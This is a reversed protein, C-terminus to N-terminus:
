FRSYGLSFEPNGHTVLIQAQLLGLNLKVCLKFATTSLQLNGRDLASMWSTLGPTIRRLQGIDRLEQTRRGAWYGPGEGHVM